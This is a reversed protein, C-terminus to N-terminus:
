NCEMQCRPGRRGVEAEAEAEAEEKEVEPKLEKDTTHEAIFNMQIAFPLDERTAELEDFFIRGNRETKQNNQNYRRSQSSKGQQTSSNFYLRQSTADRTRAAPGFLMWSGNKKPFFDRQTEEM